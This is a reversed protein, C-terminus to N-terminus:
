LGGPLTLLHHSVSFQKTESHQPCEPRATTQLSLGLPQGCGQYCRLSLCKRSMLDLPLGRYSTCHM